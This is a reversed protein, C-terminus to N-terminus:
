PLSISPPLHFNMKTCGVVTVDRKNHTLKRAKGADKESDQLEKWAKYPEMDLYRRLSWEESARLAVATSLSGASAENPFVRVVRTRRKVEGFLRELANTTRILRHHSSPFSLFSLVSELGSRLVSVAGPFRREWRACFSEFLKRADELRNVAFIAKLDAAVMGTEAAPVKALVNRMFHVICRQWAVGPLEMAVAKKIAEHDDSIVLAVGSLGRQLLGKLVSRYAEAKEGAFTEVALVERFGKENVGIAVLVALDGVHSSWNVKLYTADLYLYPYAMELRRSRFGSLEQELRQAIRSVADKGIKVAGLKQTVEAIKRQSIGQLWMELIADEVEGTARHYEEFVQTTFTGERDRPVRLQEIKGVPTILDRTYSGNREGSRQETRERHRAGLHTTMEEEIVQELVAKVAARIREGVALNTTTQIEDRNIDRNM